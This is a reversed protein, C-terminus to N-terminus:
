LTTSSSGLAGFNDETLHAVNVDVLIALPRDNTSIATSSGLQTLQINEYTLEGALVIYDQEVNFDKIVDYGTDPALYFKDYGEGGYLIDDGKGGYIRDNGADGYLTDYGDGGHLWDHHNGGRLIDYGEGGYLTDYGDDGHIVDDGLQGYVKDNGAGGYITDNGGVEDQYEETNLPDGYITDNGHNGYIEDDGLSGIIKDAKETGQYLASVQINLFHYGEKGFDSNAFIKEGDLEFDVAGGAGKPLLGPHKHIVGNEEVGGVFMQHGNYPLTEFTEDNVETGADWVDEGYVDFNAGIFYGQEDYVAVEKADDNGIFADNTPFPMTAYSFYKNKSADLEYKFSVSESDGPLPHAFTAADNTILLDQYGGNKAADSVAFKGSLTAEAPPVKTPDLGDDVLVQMFEPTMRNNPNGVEGDEAMYEVAKSAAEGANFYDYSGDHMAFWLPSIIQGSEPSHNTYTVKYEVPKIINQETM